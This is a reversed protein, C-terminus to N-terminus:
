ASIRITSFTMMVASAPKQMFQTLRTFDPDGVQTVVLSDQVSAVLM